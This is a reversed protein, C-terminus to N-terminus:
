DVFMKVFNVKEGEKPKHSTIKKKNKLTNDEDLLNIVAPLFCQEYLNKGRM